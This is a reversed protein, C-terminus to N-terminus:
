LNDGGIYKGGVHHSTELEEITLDESDFLNFFFNQVEDNSPNYEADEVVLMAKLNIVIKM